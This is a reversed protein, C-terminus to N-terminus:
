RGGLALLALKVEFIYHVRRLAEAAHAHARLLAAIDSKYLTEMDYGYDSAPNRKLEDLTNMVRSLEKPQM